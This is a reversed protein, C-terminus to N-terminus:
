KTKHTASSRGKFKSKLKKKQGAKAKAKFFRYSGTEQGIEMCVRSHFIENM